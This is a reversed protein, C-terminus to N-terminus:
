GALPLPLLTFFLIFTLISTTYIHTDTYIPHLASMNNVQVSTNLRGTLLFPTSHSVHAAPVLLLISPPGSCVLIYKSLLVLLLSVSVSSGPWSPRIRSTSWSSPRVFDYNCQQGCSSFQGSYRYYTVQTKGHNSRTQSNFYM